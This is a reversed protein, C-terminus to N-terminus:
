LLLKALRIINGSLILEKDGEAIPLSTVKSLETAMSGFPVDSAFIIREPGIAEFFRLITSGSALATDFFVKPSDRFTKLFDLPSGGLM